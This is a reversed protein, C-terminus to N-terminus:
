RSPVHLLYGYLVKSKQYGALLDKRATDSKLGGLFLFDEIARESIRKTKMMAQLKELETDAKSYQVDLFFAPGRQNWLRNIELGINIRNVIIGQWLFETPSSLLTLFWKGARPLGYKLRYTVSSVASLTPFSVKNLADALETM